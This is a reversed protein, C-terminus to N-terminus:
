VVKKVVGFVTWLILKVLIVVYFVTVILPVRNDPITEAVARHQKTRYQVHSRDSLYTDPVVTELDCFFGYDSDMDCELGHILKNEHGM